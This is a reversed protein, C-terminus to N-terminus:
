LMQVGKRREMNRREPMPLPPIIQEVSEGEGAGRFFWWAIGAIVGGFFLWGAPETIYRPLYPCVGIWLAVFGGLLLVATCILAQLAIKVPVANVAM